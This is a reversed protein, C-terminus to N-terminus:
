WNEDHSVDGVYRAIDAVLANVHELAKASREETVMNATYTSSSDTNTHKIIKTNTRFRGDKTDIRLNYHIKYQIIGFPDSGILAIGNGIITGTEVSEYDIVSEGSVFYESFWQRAKNYIEQQKMNPVDVVEATEVPSFPQMACGAVFFIIAIALIKNFM